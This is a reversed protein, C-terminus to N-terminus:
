CFVGMALDVVVFFAEVALAGALFTEAEAAALRLTFFGVVAVPLFVATAAEFFAAVVVRLVELAFFVSFFTHRTISRSSSESVTM